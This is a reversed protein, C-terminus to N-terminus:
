SNRKAWIGDFEAATIERPTFEPDSEIEDLSPIPVEGLRTDGRQESSDAYGIRGDRYIEVKRVEWRDDDIESYLDIPEDPLNHHWQVAIYRM